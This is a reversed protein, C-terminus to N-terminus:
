GRSGANLYRALRSAGIIGSNTGLKSLVIELRRGTFVPIRALVQHRVARLLPHGIRSVGGGIIVIEPDFLAVVNSIGISLYAATEEVVRLALSDGARAAIGIERTTVAALRDKVLALITSPKEHQGPFMHLQNRHGALRKLQQRLQRRARAVVARSGVYAELCGRGGCACEAGNSCIVMHGLEGAAHNAGIHLRNEAIIGGGVGTGLTICFLNRHGMGRGFLWEGLAVTNVDNAVAVPLGTLEELIARVPTGHWGPLNPPLRVVGREHDVLGAIGVGVSRVRRSEALACITRAVRRLASTPGRRAQTALLRRSTVRGHADVLGLKINTGGIDVGIDFPM